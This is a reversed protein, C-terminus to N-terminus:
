GALGHQRAHFGSPEVVILRLQEAYVSLRGSWPLAHACASALSDEFLVINRLLRSRGDRHVGM